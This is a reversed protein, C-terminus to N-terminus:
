SVRQAGTFPLNQSRTTEFNQLLDFRVNLLLISNLDGNGLQIKLISSCHVGEVLAQRGIHAIIHINQHVVSSQGFLRASDVLHVPIIHIRHNIGVDLTDDLHNLSKHRAHQLSVGTVDDGNTRDGALLSVGITGDITSGLVHDLSDVSAQSMLEDRSGDSDSENRGSHDLSLEGDNAEPVLGLGIGEIGTENRENASINSVVDDISGRSGSVNLDDIDDGEGGILSSNSGNM